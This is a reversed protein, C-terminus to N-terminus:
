QAISRNFVHGLDEFTRLKLGFNSSLFESHSIDIIKDEKGHFLTVKNALLSDSLFDLRSRLDFELLYDLISLLVSQDVRSLTKLQTKLDNKQIRSPLYSAKLFSELPNLNGELVSQRLEMILSVDQVKLVSKNEYDEIGFHADSFVVSPAFLFLHEIKEFYSSDVRSLFDLVFMAGTSHGGLSFDVDKAADLISLFKEFSLRNGVVLDQLSIHIFENKSFYSEIFSYSDSRQAFGHIFFLKKM